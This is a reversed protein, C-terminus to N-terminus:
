RLMNVISQLSNLISVPTMAEVEVLSLDPKFRSEISSSSPVRGTYLRFAEMEDCFRGLKYPDHARERAALLDDMCMTLSYNSYWIETFNRVYDVLSDSGVILESFEEAEFHFGIPFSRRLSINSRRSRWRPLVFRWHALPSCDHHQSANRIRSSQHHERQPLRSCWRLNWPIEEFLISQSVIARHSEDTQSRVHYRRLSRDVRRVTRRLRLSTQRHLMRIYSRDISSSCRSSTTAPSPLISHRPHDRVQESIVCVIRGCSTGYNMPWPTPQYCWNSWGSVSFYPSTQWITLPM